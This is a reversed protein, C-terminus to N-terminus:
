IISSNGPVQICACSGKCLAPLLFVLTLFSNRQNDDSSFPPFLCVSVKAPPSTLPNHNLNLYVLTTMSRLEVPLSSIRNGSIDLRELRLYTLEPSLVVFLFCLLNSM